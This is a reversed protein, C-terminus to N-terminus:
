GQGARGAQGDSVEGSSRAWDVEGRAGGAMGLGGQGAGVVEKGVPGELRGCVRGSGGVLRGGRPPGDGGQRRGAVM